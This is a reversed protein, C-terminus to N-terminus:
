AAPTQASAPAPTAPAAQEPAPQPKLGPFLQDVLEEIKMGPQILHSLNVGGASRNANYIAKGVREGNRFVTIDASVLFPTLFTQRQATYTATMPCSAVSAYPPLMKVEFNRARLSAAFDELYANGNVQNTIVCFLAGDAGIMQNGDVRFQAPGGYAGPQYGAIPDPQGARDVPTVAQYTSCGTALLALAAAITARKM